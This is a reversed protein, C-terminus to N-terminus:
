RRRSNIDAGFFKSSRNLAAAGAYDVSAGFGASVDIRRSAYVFVDAGMSAHVSVDDSILKGAKVDAGMKATMDFVRTTGSLKVESGMSATLELEQSKVNLDM